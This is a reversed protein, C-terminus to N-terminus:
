PAAGGGVSLSRLPPLLDWRNRFETLDVEGCLVRERLQVTLVLNGERDLTGLRRPGKWYQSLRDRGIILFDVFRDELRVALAYFLPPVDPLKLQKLAISFQASHGEGRRYREAQGTKVQVRAVIDEDDLFALVDTGLDVEPVAANCRRILIEALVALQGSRGTFADRTGRRRAM